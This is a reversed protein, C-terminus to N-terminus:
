PTGRLPAPISFIGGSRWDAFVIRSGDPTVVASLAARPESGGLSIPQSRGSRLDFVRLEAKAVIGSRGSTVVQGVVSYVLREGDPFWSPRAGPGIVRTRGSAVDLLLLESRALTGFCYAVHRGDPSVRAGWAGPDLPVTRAGEPGVVTVTGLRSNSYFARGKVRHVEHGWEPDYDLPACPDLPEWTQPDLGESEAGSGFCLVDRGGDERWRWPGRLHRDVEREKGGSVPILFLGEGRFGAVAIWNGSPSVVPSVRFAGRPSLRITGQEYTTSRGLGAQIEATQGHGGGRECAVPAWLAWLAVLLFPRVSAPLARVM